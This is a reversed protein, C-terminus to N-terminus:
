GGLYLKGIEPNSLILDARDEFRNNGMELVYGRSALKLAKRANQEVLFIATGQKNIAAIRAFIADVLNPALGASPEDILLVKPDLMMARALAVMQQQGGSLDGARTRLRPKLAPFLELVREMREHIASTPVRKATYFRHIPSLLVRERFADTAASMASGVFGSAGYNFVYAGMELNEQVTLSPFTNRVQPVYSMGMGVITQPGLGTIDQGDLAVSGSAPKILGAIAKILTSKGAGNPGIVVVIEGSELHTSVGHLILADGYGAVLDKVELIRGMASM